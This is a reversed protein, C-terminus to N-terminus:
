INCVTNFFAETDFGRSLQNEALQKAIPISEKFTM